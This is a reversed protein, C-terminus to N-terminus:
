EGLDSICDLQAQNSAPTARGTTPDCVFHRDVCAFTRQNATAGAVAPDDVRVIEALCQDRPAGALHECCATQESTAAQYRDTHHGGCAAAALVLAAIGLRARAVTAARVTM